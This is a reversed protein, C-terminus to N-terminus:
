GGRCQNFKTCGRDHENAPTPPAQPNAHCGPPPNPGKCPDLVGASIPTAVAGHHIVVMGIIALCLIWPRM